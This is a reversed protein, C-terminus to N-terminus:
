NDVGFLYNKAIKDCFDFDFLTNIFRDNKKFSKPYKRIYESRIRSELGEAPFEGCNYVRNVVANTAGMNKYTKSRLEEILRQRVNRKTTGVKSCLLNNENDYFEFLYCIEKGSETIDFGNNEIIEDYKSKRAKRQQKKEEFIEKAYDLLHAFKRIYSKVTSIAYGTIEAIEDLGKSLIEKLYIVQAHQVETETQKELVNYKM